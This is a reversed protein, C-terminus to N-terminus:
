PTSDRRRSQGTDKVETRLIERFQATPIAGLVRRERQLLFTPTGYVRLALAAAKHERVRPRMRESRVCDSYKLTDVGVSRAIDFLARDPKGIRGWEKQRALLSDHMAFYRGQEAACEAAEAAFASHRFAGGVFPVSRWRIHGTNIFEREVMGFTQATFSACQICGFDLFEIVEVPANASGLTHGLRNLDQANSRAVDIATCLLAAGLMFCMRTALRIGANVSRSRHMEETTSTVHSAHMQRDSLPDEGCRALTGYGEHMDITGNESEASEGHSSTRASSPTTTRNLCLGEHPRDAIAYSSTLAKAASFGSTGTRNTSTNFWRENEFAMSDDNRIRCSDGWVM